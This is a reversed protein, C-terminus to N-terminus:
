INSKGYIDELKKSLRDKKIGGRGGPFKEGDEHCFKLSM